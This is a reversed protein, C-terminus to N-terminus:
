YLLSYLKRRLDLAVKDGKPLTALLELFNKKCEGYNLDKKLIELQVHLSEEIQGNEYYANALKEKAALSNPENEVDQKLALIKPDEKKEQAAALKNLLNFYYADREHESIAGLLASADSTKNLQICLDAFVLKAKTNNPASDNAKKAFEFAKNLEGASLAKQAEQLFMDEPAPLHDALIQTFEETSKKGAVVDIPSGNKLIVTTPLQQLGIQQALQQALMAQLDCDLTAILLNEPYQTALTELVSAQAICDPHQASYFNLLILKNETELTAQINEPSVSIRNTMQAGSFNM